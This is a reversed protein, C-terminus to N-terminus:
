QERFTFFFLISFYCVCFRGHHNKKTHRIKSKQPNTTKSYRVTLLLARNTHIMIKSLWNFRLNTHTTCCIGFFCLRLLLLFLHVNLQVPPNVRTMPNISSNHFVIIVFIRCSLPIVIIIFFFFILIKM